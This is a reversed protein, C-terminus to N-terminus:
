MELTIRDLLETANVVRTPGYPSEPFDRKNGTVIFDAQAAQACHLFKTDAPDPSHAPSDDPHFFEGKSRFMALLAAIEDGPFAFRPRALVAAYEQLIAESFCPRIMGQQVALVILAENGAPSILASVMVNTDIIARIV